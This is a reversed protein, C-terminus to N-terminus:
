RCSAHMSRARCTAASCRSRSCGCSWCRCGCCCRARTGGWVAAVRYHLPLASNSNSAVYLVSFDNRVFSAVLCAFAIAVLATVTVALPRALMVWDPRGRLTGALPVVGLVIASGLALWLMFHGIEPIV